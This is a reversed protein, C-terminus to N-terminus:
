LPIVQKAMAETIERDGIMFRSKKGEAQVKVPGIPMTQYIQFMGTTKM